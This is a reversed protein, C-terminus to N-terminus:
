SHKNKCFVQFQNGAGVHCSVVKWLKLTPVEIDQETGSPCWDWIHHMCVYVYMCVVCVYLIFKFYGRFYPTHM